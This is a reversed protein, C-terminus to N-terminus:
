FTGTAKVGEFAGIMCVKGTWVAGDAVVLGENRTLLPGDQQEVFLAGSM